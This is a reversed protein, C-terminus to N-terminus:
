LSWHLHRPWRGHDRLAEIQAALADAEAQEPPDPLADLEEEDLGDPLDDLICEWAESVREQAAFFADITTLAWAIRAAIRAARQQADERPARTAATLLTKITQEPTM